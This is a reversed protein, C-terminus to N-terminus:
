PSIWTGNVLRAFMPVPYADSYSLMYVAGYNASHKYVIFGAAFNINAVAGISTKLEPLASWNKKFTDMPSESVNSTFRYCLEGNQM